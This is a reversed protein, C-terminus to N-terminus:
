TRDNKGGNDSEKWTARLFADAKELMKDSYFQDDAHKFGSLLEFHVTGTDGTHTNENWVPELGRLLCLRQYFHLSQTYPVTIEADGHAIWFAMDNIRAANGEFYTYISLMAKDAETFDAQRKGIWSELWSPLGETLYVNVWNNAPGTIWAPLAIPEDDEVFPDM